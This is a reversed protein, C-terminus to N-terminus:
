REEKMWCPHRLQFFIMFLIICFKPTSSFHKLKSIALIWWRSIEDNLQTKVKCASGAWKSAMSVTLVYEVSYTSALSLQLSCRFFSLTPNQSLNQLCVMMPDTPTRRKAVAETWTWRGVNCPNFGFNHRCHHFLMNVLALFNIKCVQQAWKYISM